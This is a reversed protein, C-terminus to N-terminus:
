LQKTKEDLKELAAKLGAFGGVRQDGIWIQPMQRLEPYAALFNNRRGEDEMSWEEFDLGKSKLLSKAMECNPCNNKTYIVIKM